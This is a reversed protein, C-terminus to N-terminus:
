RAVKVVGTRVLEDLRDADYGLETLVAETHQAFTCGPSAVGPTASLAVPPAYRWFTGLTPHEVEVVLGMERLAPDTSTVAAQSTDNVEACGVGAETM